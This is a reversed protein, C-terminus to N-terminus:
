EKVPRIVTPGDDGFDMNVPIAQLWRIKIEARGPGVRYAHWHASRIHGRPSAHSGDGPDTPAIRAARLASGIRVGVDVVSTKEAAFLHMANRGQKKVKKPTPNKPMEGAIDPKDSCLYLLLNIAAILLPKTPMVHERSVTHGHLVAQTKSVDLM